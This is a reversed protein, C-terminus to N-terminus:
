GAWWGVVDRTFGNRALHACIANDGVGQRCVGCPYKGSNEVQGLGVKCNMVKTKGISVRLGEGEIKGDM